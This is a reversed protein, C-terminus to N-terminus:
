PRFAPRAVDAGARMLAFYDYTGKDRLEEDATVIAGLAAFAFASGVSIRGVGLAGLEPVTPAGPLVLVNVPRGVAAVLRRVDDPAVVGPAFLVDAGVEQYRVLREITDDLNQRGKIHNEARATLVLRKPGLHAADAAAKVRAAAFEVPYIPDDADRTFDEISCGALGADIALQVTEAVDDPDHGFGNELDASVPITVAGVLAAAHALAEERTVHGDLRGLTAAFGGSTTAIAAFGLAELVKASGLDWANPMLLPTGPTHAALFQEDLTPM